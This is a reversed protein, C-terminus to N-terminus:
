LVWLNVGACLWQGWCEYELELNVTYMRKKDVADFSRTKERIVQAQLEDDEHTMVSVHRTLRQM